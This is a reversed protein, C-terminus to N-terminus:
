LTGIISELLTRVEAGSVGSAFATKVKEQYRRAVAQDAEVLEDRHAGEFFVAAQGDPGEHVEVSGGLGAHAGHGLPVVSLHVPELKSMVLLHELQDRMVAAGGVTRRLVAEDITVWLQPPETGELRKAFAEARQMRVKVRGILAPDDQELGAIRSIMERAYGSVQLLGPVFLPQNLYMRTAEQELKILQDLPALNRGGDTQVPNGTSMM